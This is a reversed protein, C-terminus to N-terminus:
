PAASRFSILRNLNYQILVVVVITAAKTLYKDFGLRDVGLDLLGASTAWGLLAVACFSLFRPALYHRVQFTFRANLVFSLVTGSAYGIANAVQFHLDSWTVLASYTLFDFSAGTGGSLCYRVFQRSRALV